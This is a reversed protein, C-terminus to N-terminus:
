ATRLTNEKIRQEYIIKATELYRPNDSAMLDAYAILPSVLNFEPMPFQPQNIRTDAWFKEIVTINGNPDPIWKFAQSITKFSQKTYLTWKDAILHNSWIEGANASGWATNAPLKLKQWDQLKDLARYRKQHLKPKLNQTYAEAWKMMLQTRKNWAYEKNNLAVLYKQKILGQFVKSITDLGVKTHDAIFRYTANMHQTNQLLYYVVKLGTKTFARNSTLTKKRKVQHAEIHLYLKDDPLFINGSTDAYAINEAQLIQKAKPSIYEAVLIKPEINKLRDLWTLLIVPTWEKKAEVYWNKCYRGQKIEILGDIRFSSVWVETDLLQFSINPLKNLQQIFIHLIDAEM